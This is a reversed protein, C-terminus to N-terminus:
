RIERGSNGKSGILDFVASFCEGQQLVFKEVRVGDGLLEKVQLNVDIGISKKM